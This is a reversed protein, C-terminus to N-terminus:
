PYFSILVRVRGAEPRYLDAALTVGDGLPVLAIRDVVV